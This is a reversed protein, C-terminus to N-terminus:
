REYRQSGSGRNKRLVEDSWRRLGYGDRSARPYPFRLAFAYLQIERTTEMEARRLVRCLKRGVQRVVLASGGNVELHNRASPFAALHTIEQM